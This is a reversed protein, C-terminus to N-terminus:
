CKPVAREPYSEPAMNNLHSNNLAATYERTPHEALDQGSVRSSGRVPDLGM